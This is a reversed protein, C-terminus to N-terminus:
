ADPRTSSHDAADHELLPLLRTRLETLFQEPRAFAALHGANKILAFEKHPAQVHDFYARAATTSTLLDTDGQFIFFPLEFRLGLARADFGMLETFLHDLSFSLGRGLDLVESLAHVPSSLMSPMLLDHIMNPVTKNTEVVFRNRRDFDKRSWTSADVGMREVHQAARRHGIAKLAELTEVFSAEYGPAGVNQDTGVYAHLLDPRRKAMKLATISGVSSGLLVIKSHGLRKCVHATLELGDSVLQDFSLPLSGSAGNRGFTKGAGRQDWQIITFYREWDRLLTSFMSYTAGPGGHVLLLAPNSTSEGRISVWQEIGGLRVFRAEDIGQPSSIRLRERNSARTKPRALLQSLLGPRTSTM